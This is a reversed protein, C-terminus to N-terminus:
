KTPVQIESQSAIIRNTYLIHLSTDSAASGFQTMIHPAMVTPPKIIVDTVIVDITMTTMATVDTIMVDTTMAIM